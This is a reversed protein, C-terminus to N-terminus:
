GFLSSMRLNLPTIEDMYIKLSFLVPIYEDRVVNLFFDGQSLVQDNSVEFHYYHFSPSKFVQIYVSKVLNFSDNM